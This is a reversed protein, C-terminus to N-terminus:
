INLKAVYQGANCYVSWDESHHEEHTHIDYQCNSLRYESGSCALEDIHIPDVGGGFCACCYHVVGTITM